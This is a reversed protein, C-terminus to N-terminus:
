ETETTIKSEQERKPTTRSAIRKKRRHKRNARKKRRTGGLRNKATRAIRKDEKPKRLNRQRHRGARHETEQQKKQDRAKDKAGRRRLETGQGTARDKTGRRKETM